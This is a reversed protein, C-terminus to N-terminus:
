SENRSPHNIGAQREWRRAIWSHTFSCLLSIAYHVKPDLSEMNDLTEAMEQSTMIGALWVVWQPPTRGQLQTSLENILEPTVIGIKRIAEACGAAIDSNTEKLGPLLVSHTVDGLSTLADLAEERIDWNIDAFATKLLKQAADTGINGLSWSAASRFYFPQQNDHLIAGLLQVAEPIGTEGITIVSELRIQDDINNLYEDFLSQLSAYRISSLYALAELRVYLDEQQDDAIEKILSRHDTLQHIRCLKVGTFRVTRERSQLSNQIFQDPFHRNCRLQEERLPIPSSALVQYKEVQEGEAVHVPIGLSLSLTRLRGNEPRLKIKNDEVSEVNSTCTAFKAKWALTLESGETVGKRVRSDPPHQRFSDVTFYNIKGEVIWEAWNREHWYSASDKFHGRTWLKEDAAVSVPFAILDNSLMGYDWSREMDTDSHSMSLEPKTKARSEVRLGCNKCVLDPLRVRKRKVEKWLKAATSGRELEVMNHGKESLNRCIAQTGNAGIVIKKFFSADPKFNAM